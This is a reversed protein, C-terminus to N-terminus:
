MPLSPTTGQNRALEGINEWGRMIEEPSHPVGNEDTYLPRPWNSGTMMLKVADEPVFKEFYDSVAQTVSLEMPKGDFSYKHEADNFAILKDLKHVNTQELILESIREPVKFSSDFREPEFFKQSIRRCLLARKSISRQFATCATVLM